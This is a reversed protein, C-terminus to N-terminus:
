RQRAGSKPLPATIPITTIPLRPRSLGNRIASRLEAIVTDGDTRIRSPAYHLVIIGHASMRTHRAQTRKWDEPSLHWEASDVECAVGADPWWADPWALFAPGALLRPNYLPTPLKGRIILRRLDGEAVSRAGHIVDALAERLPASGQTTGAGLEAVLEEVACFSRQVATAVLARATRRDMGARIADAVARAPPAYRIGDARVLASPMRLTRHVVVFSTSQKGLRAPILMDVTGSAPVTVGHRLLAARGTVVSQRGAYLAAAVERQASTLPGTSSSYVAPLVVAWPGGPRIRHRLASATMGAALAQARTVLGAQSRILAAVALDVANGYGRM